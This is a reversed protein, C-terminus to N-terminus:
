LILKLIKVLGPKKIVIKYSKELSNAAIMLKAPM